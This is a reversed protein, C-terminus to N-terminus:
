ISFNPIIKYKFLVRNIIFDFKDSEDNYGESLAEDKLEEILLGYEKSSLELLTLKSQNEKKLTFVLFCQSKKNTQHQSSTKNKSIIRTPLKTEIPIFRSSIITKQLSAWHEMSPHHFVLTLYKNPKLVRYAEDLFESFQNAYDNVSKNQFKNVIMEDKTDTFGGLWSEWVLNLESYSIVDTYPPDTYIYDISENLISTLRHASENLIQVTSTSNNFLEKNVKIINFLKKEFSKLVNNDKIIPPIYYTGMKISTNEYSRYRSMLSINFLISTFAFLFLKSIKEEKIKKIEDYIISIATLNRPSYIQFVKTINKKINRKPENGFFDFEPYYLNKYKSTTYLNIDEKSPIKYIKETSCKCRHVIKILEFSKFKLNKPIKYTEGNRIASFMKEGVLIVKNDETYYEEGVISFMIQNSTNCQACKTLYIPELKEKISSWYSNIKENNDIISINTTYGASIHRAIVSIDNLICNRNMKLSAVGTMGTGSFPDLVVDGEKTYENIYYEIPEIPQKTWYTHLNFIPGSKKYNFDM